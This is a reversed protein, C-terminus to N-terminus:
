QWKSSGMMAGMKVTISRILMRIYAANGFNCRRKDFASPGGLNAGASVPMKITNSNNFQTTPISLACRLIQLQLEELAEPIRSPKKRLCPGYEGCYLARM